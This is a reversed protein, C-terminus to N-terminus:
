KKVGRGQWIKESVTTYLGSYEWSFTTPSPNEAAPYIYLPYLDVVSIKKKMMEIKRKAKEVSPFKLVNGHGGSWHAEDNRRSVYILYSTFNRWKDWTDETYNKFDTRVIIYKNKSM